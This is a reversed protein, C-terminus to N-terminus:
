TRNTLSVNSHTMTEVLDVLVPIDNTL